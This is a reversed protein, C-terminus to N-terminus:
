TTQIFTPLEGTLRVLQDTWYAGFVLVVHFLTTIGEPVIEPLKPNKRIFNDGVLELPAATGAGSADSPPLGAGVPLL